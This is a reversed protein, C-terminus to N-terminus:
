LGDPPRRAVAAPRRSEARRDPGALSISNLVAGPRDGADGAAASVRRFERRSTSARRSAMRCRPPEQDPRRWAAVTRRAISRAWSRALALLQPRWEDAQRELLTAVVDGCINSCSFDTASFGPTARPHRRRCPAPPSQGSIRQDGGGLAGAHLPLPQRDGPKVLWRMFLTQLLRRPQAALRKAIIAGAMM